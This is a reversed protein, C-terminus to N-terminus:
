TWITLTSLRKNMQQHSLVNFASLALYGILFLLFYLTAGDLRQPFVRDFQPCELALVDCEDKSTWM